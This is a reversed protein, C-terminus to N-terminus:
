HIKLMFTDVERAARPIFVLKMVAFYVVFLAVGPVQSWLSAALISDAARSIVTAVRLASEAFLVVSLGVTMAQEVRRFRPSERAAREFAEARVPDGATAMPKSVQMIFPRETWVTVLVYVGAIATYFSPRILVFRPDSSISVLVVTAALEVMVLLAFGDLSRWRRVLQAGQILVFISSGLIIAVLDSGGAFRTSATVATCAAAILTGVLFPRRLIGHGAGRASSVSGACAKAAVFFGGITLRIVASLGTPTLLAFIATPLLLDVAFDALSIVAMRAKSPSGGYAAIPIEPM